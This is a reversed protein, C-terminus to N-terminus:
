SSSIGSQQLSAYDSGGMLRKLGNHGIILETVTNDSSSGVFPRNASPTADVIVAWSLSVILLLVTALSMHALRKQWNHKSGFFYLAYLAPLVMYAQLMKINFGLGILLMGLLLYRFRGREVSKWVAWTALLLSFVLLGDMTNNREAAISIPTVALVLAASLGARSNFQNKVLSYLVPVSLVGALANPFALSFGNIGLFYASLTELWLGLPPKDVSVSGGPEFSVFFFNHWSSLMSKVAAAYYVNGISTAGLHYFRLFAALFIIASLILATITQNSTAAPSNEETVQNETSM